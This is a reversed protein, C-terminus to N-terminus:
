LRPTGRAKPEKAITSEGFTGGGIVFANQDVIQTVLGSVTAKKGYFENPDDTIDAITAGTEKGASEAKEGSPVTQEGGQEQGGEQEAGADGCSALLVAAVVLLATALAESLFLRSDTEEAVKGRM